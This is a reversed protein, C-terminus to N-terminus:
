WWLLSREVGAGRKAERGGGCVCFSCCHGLAGAVGVSAAEAAHTYSALRRSKASLWVASALAWVPSWHALVSHRPHVASGPLHSAHWPHPQQTDVSHVPHTSDEEM